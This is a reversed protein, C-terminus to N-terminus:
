SAATLARDRMERHVYLFDALEAPSWPEHAVLDGLFNGAKTM